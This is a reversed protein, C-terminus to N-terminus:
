HRPVLALGERDTCGNHRRCKASGALLCTTQRSPAAPLPQSPGQSPTARLTGDTSGGSGESSASGQWSGM